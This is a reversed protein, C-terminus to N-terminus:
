YCVVEIFRIESMRYTKQSPVRKVAHATNHRRVFLVPTMRCGQRVGQDVRFWESTMGDTRVASLTDSYLLKMLCVIDEPMRHARLLGWIADREVSDFAARVDVYAIWLLQRFELRTQVICNLTVMRDITSRGPTFGSQERRGVLLQLHARARYLLIGSFVKGSVSLLTIGRYNRCDLRSGKGKYFPLIIGRTWDAPIVRSCWVEWAVRILWGIGAEGGAKLLEASICCIDAAKGKKLRRVEAAVEQETAPSCDVSPDLLGQISTSVRPRLNLCTNSSNGAAVDSTFARAVSPDWLKDVDLQPRPSPGRRQHGFRIDLRAVVARHDSDFEM